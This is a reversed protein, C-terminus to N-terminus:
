ILLSYLKEELSESSALRIVTYPTLQKNIRCIGKSALQELVEFWQNESLAFCSASALMAMEDATIESQGPYVQEWECLMDYGYLYLLERHVRQPLLKIVGSTKDASLYSIASLEQYTSLLQAFKVTNFRIQMQSSLYDRSISGHNQRLLDRVFFNWMPAGTVSCLRTHLLWQTLEEGCARDEDLVIQGLSTLKPSGIDPEILGMYAAYKLHPVVKGSSEGQPIGTLDSVERASRKEGNALALIRGIYGPTPPFTQHFHVGFDIEKKM